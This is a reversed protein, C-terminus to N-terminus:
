YFFDPYLAGARASRAARCSAYKMGVCIRAANMADMAPSGSNRSQWDVSSCVADTQLWVHM